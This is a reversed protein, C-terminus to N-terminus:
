GAKEFVRKLGAIDLQKMRLMAEMARQSKVTDSDLLMEPLIRPVVQWSVGFRDKLWGCMQAEPPGGASLKDWYDDVEAQTECEIQFSIAETITFTPGGNLATFSQGNLEFVVTMVSGPPRGHQEKGAEGYHSIATIRSDKFVTTYFRAADEAQDDFWLCPSIKSKMIKDTPKPNGIQSDMSVVFTHGSAPGTQPGRPVNKKFGGRPGGRIMEM